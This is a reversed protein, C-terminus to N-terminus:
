RTAGGDEPAAHPESPPAGLQLSRVAETFDNALRGAESPAILTIVYGIGSEVVYLQKAYRRGGDLNAELRVHADEDASIKVATFGQKELLPKSQDALKQASIRAGIKQASLTLKGGDRHSYSALLRPYSPQPSLEWGPPPEFNRVRLADNRYSRAQGGAGIATSAAAIAFSFILGARISWRM